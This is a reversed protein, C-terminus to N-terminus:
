QRPLQTINPYHDIIPKSKPHGNWIISVVDLRAPEARLQKSALFFHAIRILRKRKHHHVADTPHGLQDNQRTKVEVFVITDVDVAILDMEGFPCCYSHAIM